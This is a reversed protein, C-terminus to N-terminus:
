KWPPPRAFGGIQARYALWAARCRRVTRAERLPNRAVFGPPQPMLAQGVLALRSWHFKARDIALPPCVCRGLVRLCDIPRRSWAWLLAPADAVGAVGPAFNRILAAWGLNGTCRQVQSAPVKTGCLVAPMALILWAM